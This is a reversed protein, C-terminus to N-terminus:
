NIINVLVFNSEAFGAIWEGSVTVASGLKTRFTNFSTEDAPVLVIDKTMQSIGSATNTVEVATDLVIKYDYPIDPSPRENKDLTGSYNALVQEYEPYTGFVISCKDSAKIGSMSLNTRYYTDSLPLTNFQNQMVGSVEVCKGWYFSMATEDGMLFAGEMEAEYAPRSIMSEAKNLYTVQYMPGSTRGSSYLYGILKSEGAVPTPTLTATLVLKESETKFVGLYIMSGVAIASILVVVLITIYLIRKNM